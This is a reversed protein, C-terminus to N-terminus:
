ITKHLNRLIALGSEGWRRLPSLSLKLLNWAITSSSLTHLIGKCLAQCTTLMWYINVNHSYVAYWTPEFQILGWYCLLNCFARSHLSHIFITLVPMSDLIFVHGTNCQWYSVAGVRRGVGVLVTITQLTDWLISWLYNNWSAARSCHNTKKLKKFQLIIPKCHGTPTEAM